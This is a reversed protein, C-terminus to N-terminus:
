MALPAGLCLRELNPYKGPGENGICIELTSAPDVWSREEKGQARPRNQIPRQRARIRIHYGSSGGGKEIQEECVGQCENYGGDDTLM